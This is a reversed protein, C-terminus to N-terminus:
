KSLLSGGELKNFSVLRTMSLLAMFKHHDEGCRIFASHRVYCINLDYCEGDAPITKSSQVAQLICINCTYRNESNLFIM